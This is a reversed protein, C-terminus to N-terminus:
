GILKVYDDFLIQLRADNDDKLWSNAGFAVDIVKDLNRHADRLDKPM